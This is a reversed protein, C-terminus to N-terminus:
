LSSHLIRTTDNKVILKYLGRISNISLENVGGEKLGNIFEEETTINHEIACHMYGVLFANTITNTLFHM